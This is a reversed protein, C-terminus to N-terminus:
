TTTPVETEHKLPSSSSLSSEGSVTDVPISELDDSVTEEDGERVYPASYLNERSIVEGINFENDDLDGLWKKEEEEDSSDAGLFRDPLDKVLQDNYVDTSESTLDGRNFDDDNEGNTSNKPDVTVSVTKPKAFDDDVAGVKPGGPIVNMTEPRTGGLPQRDLEQTQHLAHLVYENWDDAHIYESLEDELENACKDFLKCTEDSIYTLHGMYGLRFGKPQEVHYDNLRQANTIQAMLNASKFVAVVLRKVSKRVNIMKHPSAENIKETLEPPLTASPLNATFSFTNFIKAIMDYVVSHIFNNWPFMFFLKICREMIKDEVFRDTLLTLGDAVTTYDSTTPSPPVIMMDFLPSSTFLYQLHIFEAFVECIKLRESGLPIQKGITTDVAVSVSLPHDLSYAFLKLNDCFVEFLDNLDTALAHIKELGPYPPPSLMSQAQVTYEHHHMEVTEIESCYRRIIEMIINIGNVLSSTAYPAERNLMFAILKRLSKKTKMETVLINSAGNQLAKPPDMPSIPTSDPFPQPVQYTLTIIDVLTQAAVAHIEADLSPDLEDILHDIIGLDRLWVLTGAGEPTEELNIIKLVLEAIAHCSIHRKLRAPTRADAKLYGLMQSTKKAFLVANIKAFYTALLVSMPKPLDMLEWFGDLIDKNSVLADLIAPIECGVLESVIFPWKFKKVEDLEGNKTIFSFLAQLNSTRCIFEILKPNQGKVEQLLEEEGMLDEMKSGEKDILNEIASANHFGFRWFM